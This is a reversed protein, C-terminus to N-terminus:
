PSILLNDILAIFGNMGLDIKGIGGAHTITVTEQRFVFGSVSTYTSVNSRVIEAGLIPAGIGDFAAVPFVAIDNNGRLQFRVTGPPAAFVMTMTGSCFGGAPAGASTVSHNAPGGVPDYASSSLFLQANTLTPCVLGAYSFVVGRSAYENTVACNACTPSGDPYTEFDIVGIQPTGTAAILAPSNTVYTTTVQLTNVGLRLRWSVTATGLADTLVPQSEVVSGGGGTVTFTVAQGVVPILAGHHVNQVQVAAQVTSGAPAIAGDGSTVTMTAHRAWGFRSFSSTTGGAGFDVAHLARPEIIREIGRTVASWGAKAIDGLRGSRIAAGISPPTAGFGDCSLFPAPVEGLPVPPGTLQGLIEERRHLEFPPANEHGAMGPIQFCVGVVVPIQFLLDTGDVGLGHLDPDTRFRYCGELEELGTNLCSTEPQGDHVPIREIIVVVQDIGPPLWGNTFRAGAFGTNTTVDFTGAPIVNPVVQEVRDNANSSGFAGQEIRVKIPLTRGDQFPVIEGTKLSKMGGPVPDMDLFGLPTGGVAGRVIIRYFSTAILPSSQTDWNLQYQENSADLGMRAPGFVRTANLCDVAPVLGPDAALECVEVFPSLHSNFQGPDFNPSGVPNPVLPPLFFFDPNGSHAGDVILARISGPQQPQVPANERCAALIVFISVGLFRTVPKM